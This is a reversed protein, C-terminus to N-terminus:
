KKGTRGNQIRYHGALGLMGVFLLLMTAPVPVPAGGAQFAVDEMWYHTQPYSTAVAEGDVLLNYTGAALFDWTYSSVLNSESYYPDEKEWPTVSSPAPGNEFGVSTINVWEAYFGHNDKESLRFSLTGSESLTFVFTDQFSATYQGNQQKVLEPEYFPRYYDPDAFDVEIYEASATATFFALAWLAFFGTKILNMKRRRYLYFNFFASCFAEKYM